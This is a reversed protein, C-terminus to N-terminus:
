CGVCNVYTTSARPIKRAMRPYLPLNTRYDYAMALQVAVNGDRQLGEVDTIWTSQDVSNPNRMGFTYQWKTTDPAM